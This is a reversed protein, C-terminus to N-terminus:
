PHLEDIPWHSCDRVTAPLLDAINSMVKSCLLQCTLILKINRGMITVRVSKLSVSPRGEIICALCLSDM